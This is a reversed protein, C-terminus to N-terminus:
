GPNGPGPVADPPGRLAREAAEVAISWRAEWSGRVVVCPRGAEILAQECRQFFAQRAEPLYRVPDDVWPVDVDCLLTLAYRRAAAAERIWAPCRGYLVESWIVTTLLDTDCFLLRNADRALADESAAQGEAIHPIDDECVDGGRAELWIRAYEPVCLTDFREALRRALTTKGTSEPGFVCIRRAYWPRVCDPLLGWHAFPDARIATGSSGHVRGPDVPTFRAGLEAALRVGYPESAFVRDIPWPVAALLAERWLAWFDPHEHPYQPMARGLDVVVCDPLLERMWAVRVAGPIPADAPTDVVVCLRDVCSRAFHCLYLHGRHPPLFKGLVLGTTM